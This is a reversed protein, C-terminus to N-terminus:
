APIFVLHCRCNPHRPPGQLDGYVGLNRQGTNYPFEQDWPIVMGHLGRCHSCTNLEEIQAVWMKFGSHAQLANLETIARTTGVDVAMAARRELKQLWALLRQALTQREPDKMESTIKVPAEAAMGDLDNKVSDKFPSDLGAFANEIIAKSKDAANNFPWTLASQVDSRALIAEIPKHPNNRMVLSIFAVAEQSAGKWAASAALADAAPM